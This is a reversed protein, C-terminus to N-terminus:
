SRPTVDKVVPNIGHERASQRLQHLTITTFGQSLKADIHQKSQQALFGSPHRDMYLKAIELTVRPPTEPDDLMANLRALAKEIGADLLREVNKMECALAQQRDVIAQRVVPYEALRELSSKSMNLLRAVTAVDMGYGLYTAAQRHALPADAIDDYKPKNLARAHRATSM